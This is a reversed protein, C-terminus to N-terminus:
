GGKEKVSNQKMDKRELFELKAKKIHEMYNDTILEQRKRLSLPKAKKGKRVKKRLKRVKRVLPPYKFYTQYLTFTTILVAVGIALTYILWSYDIRDIRPNPEFITYSVILSVNDISITINNALIFEDALNLELSVNVDDTILNSVEFGGVKAEQYSTTASDLSIEEPIKNNNILVGLKSNPSSNSPWEQDIKYYFNLIASNVEVPYESIDSIKECAQNLFVKTFQNIIKDYSFSLNCSKIRLSYWTDIELGGYNDECYIDIGLTLTFNRNDRSLVRSLFFALDDDELPTMETDTVNNQGGRGTRGWNGIGLDVTQNYALEYNEIQELDSVSIFFRAHDYEAAYAGGPDSLTDSPTELNIDATANFIASLDTATIVYDSMDVPMTVNRKWHIIPNNRSQDVSESYENDAWFGYEDLGTNDPLVSLESEKMAIWKQSSSNSPTGSINNFIRKEGLVIFKAEGDLINSAVDSSDGTETATWLDQSDFNSNNIWQKTDKIEESLHLTNYDESVYFNNNLSIMFPQILFPIILFFLFCKRLKSQIIKM